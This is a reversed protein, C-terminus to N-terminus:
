EKATAIGVFKIGLIDGTEADVVLTETGSTFTEGTPSTVPKSIALESVQVVRNKDIDVRTEGSSSGLYQSYLMATSSASTTLGLRNVATAMSASQSLSTLRAANDPYAVVPPLTHPQIAARQAISAQGLRSSADNQAVLSGAGNSNSCGGAATVLLAAAFIRAMSINM